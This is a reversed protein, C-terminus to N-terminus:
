AITLADGLMKKAADSAVDTLIKQFVGWGEKGVKMAIKKVRAVAVPTQPSDQALEAVSESLRTKEEPTLEDMEQILDHAAKIREATWPFPKGCDPCYAPVVRLESRLRPRLSESVVQHGLIATGRIKSDCIPCRSIVESGDRECFKRQRYPATEARGTILHGKLCIQATDYTAM